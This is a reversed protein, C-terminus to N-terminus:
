LTVEMITIFTRVPDGYVKSAVWQIIQSDDRLVVGGLADGVARCLKDLDPKTSVYKPADDRITDALKGTRYHSKPRPFHFTAYVEVPGTFMAAGNLATAADASVSDRFPKVRKNDEGGWKNKSGQPAPLGITVFSLDRM